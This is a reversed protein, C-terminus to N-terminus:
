LINSRHFLLFLLPGYGKEFIAPTQQRDHQSNGDSQSDDDKM